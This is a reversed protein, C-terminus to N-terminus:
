MILVSAKASLVYTFVVSHMALRTTHKYLGRIFVQTLTLTNYPLQSNFHIQGLM